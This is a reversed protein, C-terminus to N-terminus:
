QVHYFFKLQDDEAVGNEQSTSALCSMECRGNFMRIQDEENLDM